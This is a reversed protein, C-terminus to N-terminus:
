NNVIKFKKRVVIFILAVCVQRVTKMRWTREHPVSCGSSGLGETPLRSRVFWSSAIIMIRLTHNM